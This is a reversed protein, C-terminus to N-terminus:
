ANDKVEKPQVSELWLIATQLHTLAIAFRPPVCMAAGRNPNQEQERKLNIEADKLHTLSLPENSTSM